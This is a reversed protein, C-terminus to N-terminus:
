LRYVVALPFEGQRDGQTAPMWALAKASYRSVRAKSRRFRKWLTRTHANQLGIWHTGVIPTLQQM